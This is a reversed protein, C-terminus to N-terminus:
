RFVYKVTTLFYLLNHISSKKQGISVFSITPDPGMNPFIPSEICSKPIYLNSSSLLILIGILVM